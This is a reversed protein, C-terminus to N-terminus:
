EWRTQDSNFPKSCNQVSLGLHRSQSPTPIPNPYRWVPGNRSWRATIVFNEVWIWHFNTLNQIIIYLCGFKPYFPPLFKFFQKPHQWLILQIDPSHNIFLHVEQQCLGWIYFFVHKLDSFCSKKGNKWNKCFFKLLVWNIIFHFHSNETLLSWNWKWSGM